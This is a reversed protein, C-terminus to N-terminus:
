KYYKDMTVAEKEYKSKYKEQYYNETKSTFSGDTKTVIVNCGRQVGYNKIKSYALYDISNGYSLQIGKYMISFNNLHDH